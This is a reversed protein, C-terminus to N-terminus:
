LIISLCYVRRCLNCCSERQGVELNISMFVFIFLYPGTVNLLKQVLFSVIFLIFLCIESLSFISAFSAVSM